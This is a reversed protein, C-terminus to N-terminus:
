QSSFVVQDKFFFWSIQVAQYAERQRDFITHFPCRFPIFFITFICWSSIWANSFKEFCWFSLLGENSWIFEWTFRQSFSSFFTKVFSDQNKWKFIKYFIEEVAKWHTWLQMQASKQDFPTWCHAEVKPTTAEASPHSCSEASVSLINVLIVDPITRTHQM